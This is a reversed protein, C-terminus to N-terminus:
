TNSINKGNVEGMYINKIEIRNIKGNSNLPMTELAVLTTPVMYKPLNKKLVSIIESKSIEMNATYFLKIEKQLEDYLCCVQGIQIIKGVAAEIEGLEIRYGLHKIQTDKRGVFVLEFNENYYGLDGTKYIIDRYNNNLPNQIFSSNTKELDNWYGVSLSLGRIFIEGKERPLTIKNNHEDLLLVEMNDCATGIPLVKDSLDTDEIIYSTCAVTAETPGYLNAITHLKTLSNKWYNLTKLPMTEGNFLMMNLFSPREREFVQKSEMISYATPVWYTLTVQSKNLIDIVKDPFAFLAEPILVLTAGALLCSYVDPVSLDFHLGAQNGIVTSGDIQFKKIFWKMHNMLNMNNIVVGKPIGTSGSTFIIYVPKLLNIEPHLLSNPIQYNIDDVNIIPLGEEAIQSLSDVMRSNTVILCPKLTQFVLEIKSFPMKVDIPSYFNGSYLIGIFTAVEIIGKPLLVLIPRNKESTLENIKSALVRSKIKLDIFTISDHQDVIAIKDKNTDVTEEFWALINKQM